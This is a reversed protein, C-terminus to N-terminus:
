SPAAPSSRSVTSRSPWATCPSPWCSPPGTLPTLRIIRRVMFNVPTAAAGFGNRPSHTIVFGSLVYFVAVGLAGNGIVHDWLLRAPGTGPGDVLLTLHFLVVWMAALGRVADLMPFRLAGQNDTGRRSDAAVNM